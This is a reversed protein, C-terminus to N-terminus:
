RKARVANLWTTLPSLQAAVFTDLAATANADADAGAIYFTIAAGDDGNGSLQGVVGLLAAVHDSTTLRGNVWYIQRVQLARGGAVGALSGSRLEAARLPVPQGGVSVTASGRSTQRWLADESSVLMNQSNVLKRGYTQQRYYAVHVTVALEGQGYVRTAEARPNEFMPKHLPPANDDALVGALEPLRLTPAKIDAAQLQQALMTPASLVLVLAAFVWGLVASVTNMLKVDMPLVTPLLM